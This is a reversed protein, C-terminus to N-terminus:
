PTRGIHARYGFYCLVAGLLLMIVGAILAFAASSLMPSWLQQVQHPALIWSASDLISIWGLLTILVRWDAAWVNHVLVVAVGGLLGVFSALYLLAPSRLMDAVVGLYGSPNLLTGVGAVTLPPGLLRALFISTRV